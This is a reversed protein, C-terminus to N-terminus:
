GKSGQGGGSPRLSGKQAHDFATAVGIGLVAFLGLQLPWWARRVAVAQRHAAARSRYHDREMPGRDAFAVGYRRWRAEKRVQQAEEAGSGGAADSSFAARWGGAFVVAHLVCCM